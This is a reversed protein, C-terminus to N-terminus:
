ELRAVLPTGAYNTVEVAGEAHRSMKFVYMTVSSDVIM